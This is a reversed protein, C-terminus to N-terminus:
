ERESQVQLQPEHVCGIPSAHPAKLVGPSGHNVKQLEKLDGDAFDTGRLAGPLGDVPICVERQESLEANSGNTVAIRAVGRARWALGACLLAGVCCLALRQRNIM